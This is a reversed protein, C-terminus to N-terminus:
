LHCPVLFPAQQSCSVVGISDALSFSTLPLAASRVEVSCILCRIAALSRM